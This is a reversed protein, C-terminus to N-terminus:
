FGLDERRGVGQVWRPERAPDLWELIQRVDKEALGTCGATGRGEGPWVHLFICSGGGPVQGMNHGIMAGSSYLDGWRRMPEDSNWDKEVQSRRVIRNYHMSAPDDVGVVEDTLEVYPLRIKGPEPALGFAMPIPFVGAPSRKDGERKQPWGPAWLPSAQEGLGWGLGKHGLVCPLPGAVPQWPGGKSRELM